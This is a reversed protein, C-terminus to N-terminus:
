YNCLGICDLIIMREVANRSFDISVIIVINLLGHITTLFRIGTACRTPRGSEKEGPPSPLNSTYQPTVIPPSSSGAGSGSAAPYRVDTSSM